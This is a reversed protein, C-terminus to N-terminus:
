GKFRARKLAETCGNPESTFDRASGQISKAFPLRDPEQDKKEYHLNLNILRYGYENIWDKAACDYEYIAVDNPIWDVGVSETQEEDPEPVARKIDGYTQFIRRGELHKYITDLVDGSYQVGERTTEKTAYKFVELLDQETTGIKRVDQASVRATNWYRVWEDRILHAVHAGEVLLHYHPHYKDERENYTCETKRIGNFKVKHVKRLRDNVIFRFAKTRKDLESKLQRKSVTPATLTVLHWDNGRELTPKFAHVLEATKVRSCQTCWRKRCLSGTLKTGEQLLVSQCHWTNWYKPAREKDCHELISILKQNVQYKRIGKHYQKEHAESVFFYETTELTDLITVKTM